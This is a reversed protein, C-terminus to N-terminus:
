TETYTENRNVCVVQKGENLNLELLTRLAEVSRYASYCQLLTINNHGRVINVLINWEEDAMKRSHIPLNYTFAEM